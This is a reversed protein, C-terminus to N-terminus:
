GMNKALISIGLLLFVYNPTLLVMFSFNTDIKIRFDHLYFLSLADLGYLGHLLEKRLLGRTM